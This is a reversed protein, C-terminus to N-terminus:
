RDEESFFFLQWKRPSLKPETEPPISSLSGKSIPKLQRQLAILNVESTLVIPPPRGILSPATQQEQNESPNEAAEEGTEM